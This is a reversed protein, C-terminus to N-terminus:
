FIRSLGISGYARAKRDEEKTIGSGLQLEFNGGLGVAAFAGLMTKSYTPDGQVGGEVGLRLAHAAIKRGIQLRAQYAEDIPGYSGGWGLRWAKGDFAGDTQLGMDWRSGSRENGPDGPSLKTHTFRPGASVNAWGWPGSLQYVLAAEGGAYDADIRASGADYEYNGGNASVRVALGHGLSAGPLAYIVGAYGSLSDGVTGGTFWVGRPTQAHATGGAIVVALALAAFRTLGNGHDM